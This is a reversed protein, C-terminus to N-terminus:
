IMLREQISSRCAATRHRLDEVILDFAPVGAPYGKLSEAKGLKHDILNLEKLILQMDRRSFLWDDLHRELSQVFEDLQEVEFFTM